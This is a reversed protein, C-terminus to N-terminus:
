AKAAAEKKKKRVTFEVKGDKLLATVNCNDTLEGDLLLESLPDEIAREVARRLPRAGLKNQDYGKDALMTRVETSISLSIGRDALRKGVAAIELDVVLDIEERTLPKFVITDDLRALFEPRFAEELESNLKSKMEEYDEEASKKAGFGLRERNKVASSGVNSTMIIITNRFDVTRGISDTLRGDELVQLLINFVEPHAKEIEDLLVVCYPKRRVKETLQGGEEYGVYGPPAGVLRSVAHKEMYESMDIRVLSDEDQFLFQSLAKAVLTKGVGTPGLFMFSAAPRKPDKLGARSRRVARCVASIAESQGVVRERIGAEMGKLRKNDDTGPQKVPIGTMSEVVERITNETVAGFPYKGAPVMSNKIKIISAKLKDVRDKCEKAKDFDQKKVAQQKDKELKALLAELEDIEAAGGPVELRQKSGAEDLVDIAKDPLQRGPMYRASLKVAADIAGDTFQAKHHEEYRPRLGKLIEVAEAESPEEVTITQFRRELAADKEIYKRYEDLTTAGICQIEGRALAPKLINSADLSGEAGGAGVMTHLEDIFLVVNKAKTAETMIAKMREEFQGRYKTGAVMAALDLMVVRKNKLIDPVNGDAVLQAFGEVIATKGVGAEGILVANNKTRRVLIQKIRKIEKQRGVCPDLKKDKALRTLDRGYADLATAGKKSSAPKEEEETGAAQFTNMLEGTTGPDAFEKIEGLVDSYGIGLASLAQAAIGGQDRLLSLLIHETGVYSAGLAAAEDVSLKLVNLARPTFPLDKDASYDAAREALKEVEKHLDEHKLGKDELLNELCNAAVGTNEKILALLLHETGMYDHGLREAEEKAIRLIRRARDTFNNFINDFM